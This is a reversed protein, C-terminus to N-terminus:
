ANKNGLLTQRINEPESSTRGRYSGSKPTGNDKIQDITNIM